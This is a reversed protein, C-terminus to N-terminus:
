ISGLKQARTKLYTMIEDGSNALFPLMDYRENRRPSIYKNEVGNKLASKSDSQHLNSNESIAEKKLGSSQNSDDSDPQHLDSNKKITENKFSSSPISDESNEM